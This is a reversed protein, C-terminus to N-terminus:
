RQHRIQTGEAISARHRTSYDYTMQQIARLRYAFRVWSGELAARECMDRLEGVAKNKPQDQAIASLLWYVQKIFCIFAKSLEICVAFQKIYASFSNLMSHLM